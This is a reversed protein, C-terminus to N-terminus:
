IEGLISKQKKPKEEKEDDVILKKTFKRKEKHEDTDSKLLVRHFNAFM